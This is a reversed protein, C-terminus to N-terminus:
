SRRATSATATCGPTRRPRPLAFRENVPLKAVVERMFAQHHREAVEADGTAVALISLAADATGNGPHGWALGARSHRAM